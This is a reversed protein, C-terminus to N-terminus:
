PSRTEECVIAGVVAGDFARAVREQDARSDFRRPALDRVQPVAAGSNRFGRTRTRHFRGLYSFPCRTTGSLPRPRRESLWCEASPSRRSGGLVAAGVTLWTVYEGTVGDHLLKLRRAGPGLICQAFRRVFVPLSRRYRPRSIQRRLVALEHRLVVIELEKFERSRLRLSAVALARRFLLYLLSVVSL